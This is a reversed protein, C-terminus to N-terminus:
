FINRRLINCILVINELKHGLLWEQDERMRRQDKFIEVWGSLSVPPSQSKAYDVTLKPLYTYDWYPPLGYRRSRSDVSSFKRRLSRLVFDGSFCAFLYLCLALNLPFDCWSLGIRSVTSGASRWNVKEFIKSFNELTSRVIIASLRMVTRRKISWCKYVIPWPRLEPHSANFGAFRPIGPLSLIRLALYQPKVCGVGVRVCPPSVVLAKGSAGIEAIEGIKRNGPRRDAARRIRNVRARPLLKAPSISPMLQKHTALHSGRFQKTQLNADRMHSSPIPPSKPGRGQGCDTPKPVGVAGHIRWASLAPCEM